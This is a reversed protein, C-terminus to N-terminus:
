VPQETLASRKEAVHALAAELVDLAEDMKVRFDPYDNGSVNPLEALREAAVKSRETIAAIRAQLSPEAAPAAPAAAAPPEAALAPLAAICALISLAIKM